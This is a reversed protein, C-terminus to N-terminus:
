LNNFNQRFKYCCGRHVDYIRYCLSFNIFKKDCGFRKAGALSFFQIFIPCLHHCNEISVANTSSLHDSPSDDPFCKVGNINVEYPNIFMQDHQVMSIKAHRIVNLVQKLYTCNFSNETIALSKLSPLASVSNFEVLETLYNGDLYLQYLNTHRPLFLGFDFKTLRNQSLDLIQLQKTHSFTGLKIETLDMNSMNLYYLHELKSFIGVNLMGIPNNALNLNRLCSVSDFTKQHLFHLEVNSLDMDNFQSQNLGLFGFEEIEDIKSEKLYFLKLNLMDMFTGMKISTLHNHSLNLDILSKLGRFASPKIEITQDTIATLYLHQLMVLGDFMGNYLRKINNSSMDLTNLKELVAFTNPAVDSIRNNSIALHTLTLVNDFYYGSIREFMNYSLNLKNLQVVGSLSFPDLQKIKNYSFDVEKLNRANLFLHAPIESINNHSANFKELMGAKKFSVMHVRVMKMYSVNLERANTYIDLIGPDLEFMQCNHFKIEEVNTRYIKQDKNSCSVFSSNKSDFDIDQLAGICFYTVKTITKYDLYIYECDIHENCISLSPLLVTFACLLILNM